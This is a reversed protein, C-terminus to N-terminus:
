VNYMYLVHLKCTDILTDLQSEYILCVVFALRPFEKYKPDRKLVYLEIKGM